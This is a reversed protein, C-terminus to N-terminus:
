ICIDLIVFYGEDDYTANENESPFGQQASMM